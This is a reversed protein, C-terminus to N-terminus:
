QSYHLERKNKQEAKKPLEAQPKEGMVIQSNHLLLIGANQLLSGAVVMIAMAEAEKMMIMMDEEKMRMVLLAKEKQM